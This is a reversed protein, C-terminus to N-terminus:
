TAVAARRRHTLKIFCNENRSSGAAAGGLWERPPPSIWGGRMIQGTCYGKQAKSNTHKSQKTTQNWSHLYATPRNGFGQKNSIMSHM